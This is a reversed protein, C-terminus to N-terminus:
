LHETTNKLLKSMAFHFFINKNQLTEQAASSLAVNKTDQCSGSQVRHKERNPFM